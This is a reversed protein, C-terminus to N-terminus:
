PPSLDSAPNDVEGKNELARLAVPSEARDRGAISLDDFEGNNVRQGGITLGGMARSLSNATDEKNSRDFFRSPKPVLRGPSTLEPPPVVSHGVDRLSRRWASSSRDVHLDGAV